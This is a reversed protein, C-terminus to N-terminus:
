STTIKVFQKVEKIFEPDRKAENISNILKNWEIKDKRKMLAKFVM